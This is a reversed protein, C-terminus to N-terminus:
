GKKAILTELEEATRPIPLNSELVGSRQLNEFIRLVTPKELNTIELLDDKRFIEEPTGQSLTSHQLRNM